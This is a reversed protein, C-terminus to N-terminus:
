FNNSLTIEGEFPIWLNKIAYNAIEGVELRRHKLVVGQYCERNESFVLLVDKGEAGQMTMLCPLKIEKNNQSTKVTVKM